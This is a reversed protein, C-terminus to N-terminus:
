SPGGAQRPHGSLLLWLRGARPPAASPGPGPWQSGAEPASSIRLHATAVELGASAPPVRGEAATQQRYLAEMWPRGPVDPPGRLAHRLLARGRPSIRLDFDSPRFFDSDSLGFVTPNKANRG